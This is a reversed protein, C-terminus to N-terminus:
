NAYMDIGVVGILKQDVYIPKSITLITRGTVPDIYPEQIYSGKSLADRYPPRERFDYDPPLEIKPVVIFDGDVTGYYINLYNLAKENYYKNLIAEIAKKNKASKIEDSLIDAQKTLADYTAQSVTSQTSIEESVNTTSIENSSPTTTNMVLALLLNLLLLGM